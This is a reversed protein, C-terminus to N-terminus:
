EQVIGLNFLGGIHYHCYLAVPSKEAFIVFDFFFNNSLFFFQM